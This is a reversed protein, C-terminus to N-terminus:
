KAGEGNSAPKTDAACPSFSIPAVSTAASCTNELKHRHEGFPHVVVGRLEAVRDIGLNRELGLGTAKAAWM